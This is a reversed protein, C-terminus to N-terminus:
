PAPAAGQGEGLYLERMLRSHRLAEITDAAVIRGSQMLYGRQAVAFALSANQEVLLVAAGFNRRVDAIVAQVEKVMLPSLGLSPEDLLLLRPRAMLGRAIALMQQQGGSLTGGKAGRKEALIRFYAQMREIDAAVASQDRRVYAGLRLNEEVTLDAFIRRGEPVMVIGAAALRDPPQGTMDRGDVLIRGRTPRLAGCIARLLTTKGAGNPGLITAVEGEGVSLSVDRNVNVAGYATDVGDVAILSM